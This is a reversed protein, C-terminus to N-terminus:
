NKETQEKQLLKRWAKLSAFENVVHIGNSGGENTQKNRGERVGEVGEM